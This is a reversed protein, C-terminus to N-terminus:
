LRELQTRLDQELQGLCEPKFGDYAARIVGKADVIFTFPFTRAGYQGALAEGQYAVEAALAQSDVFERVKGLDDDTAVAVLTLGHARYRQYM